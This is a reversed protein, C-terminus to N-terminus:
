LLWKERDGLHGNYLPQFIYILLLFVPCNLLWKIGWLVVLFSQNDSCTYRSRCNNGPMSEEAITNQSTVENDDDDVDM